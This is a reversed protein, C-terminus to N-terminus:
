RITPRRGPDVDGTAAVLNQALAVFPYTTTNNEDIQVGVSFASLAACLQVDLDGTDDNTFDSRIYVCFRAAFSEGAAIQTM